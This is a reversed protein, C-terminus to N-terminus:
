DCDGAKDRSDAAPRNFNNAGAMAECDWDVGESGVVAVAEEEWGIM